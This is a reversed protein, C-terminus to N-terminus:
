KNYNNYACKNTTCFCYAYNYACKVNNRQLAIRDDMIMTCDTCDMAAADIGNGERTKTEKSRWCDWSINLKRGGTM